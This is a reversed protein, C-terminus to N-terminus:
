IEGDAKPLELVLMLERAKQRSARDTAEEGIM